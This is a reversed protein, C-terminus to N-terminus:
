PGCRADILEMSTGTTDVELRPVPLRKALERGYRDISGDDLTTVVVVSDQAVTM